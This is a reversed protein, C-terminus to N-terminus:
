IVLLQMEVHGGPFTLGPWVPDNRNLVLIQHDRKIMCMNTLTVPEPFALRIIRICFCGFIRKRIASRIIMAKADIGRQCISKPFKIYKLMAMKVLLGFM